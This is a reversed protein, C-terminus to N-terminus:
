WSYTDPADIVENSQMCQGMAGITFLQQWACVGMCKISERKGLTAMSKTVESDGVTPDTVFGVYVM